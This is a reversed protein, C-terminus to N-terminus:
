RNDKVTRSCEQVRVPNCLIDAVFFKQGTDFGCCKSEAGWITDEDNQGHM